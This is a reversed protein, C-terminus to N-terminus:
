VRSEVIRVIESIFDGILPLSSMAVEKLVYWLVAGLISFGIASGLGRLLGYLFANLFMRKRDQIYEIYDKFRSREMNFLIKDLKREM